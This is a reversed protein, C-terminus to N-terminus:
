TVLECNVWSAWHKRSGRNQMNGLWVAFAIPWVSGPKIKQGAPSRTLPLGIAVKWGTKQRTGWGRGRSKELSAASGFGQAVIEDVPTKPVPVAVPNGVALAPTWLVATKPPLVDSPPLDRIIRPHIDAVREEYGGGREMDHQWSARWQLIHVQAGPAGMTFPPPEKTARSPIQIAVSDHFRALSDHVNVIDDRWEILFGLESASYLARVRVAKLGATNLMPTVMQQPFVPVNIAKAKRWAAALPKGLPLPGKHFAAKLPANAATAGQAQGAAGAVAAGAAGALLAKRTLTSTM